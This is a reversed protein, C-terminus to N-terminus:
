RREGNISFGTMTEEFEELGRRGKWKVYWHVEPAYWYDDQNDKGAVREVHITRFTGAPVEVTEFGRVTYTQKVVRSREKDEYTGEYDWRRGPELPWVLWPHPPVSRAIVRSDLASGAWHLDPTYYSEVKGVRLVYYRGEAVQHIGMVESTRKGKEKGATWAYQWYDGVQWQPPTLARTSGEGSGIGACGGVLLGCLLLAPALTLTSHVRM